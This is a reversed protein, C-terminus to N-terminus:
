TLKERAVGPADMCSLVRESLWEKFFLEGCGLLNPGWKATDRRLRAVTVGPTAAIEVAHGVLWPEIGSRAVEVHFQLALTCSGWSFGQQECIPSSALHLAGNPLDYTDGHWHLVPVSKSSSECLHRLCRRKGDSTLEVPGWGIEKVAAPYVRAGLARAILQCGLCIGLLPLDAGLRREIFALENRLFPYAGEECVGIPGGLVIVLAPRLPDLKSWATTAAEIYRVRYGADNLLPELIGLDEFAVHRIALAEGRLGGHGNATM